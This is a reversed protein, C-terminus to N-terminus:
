ANASKAVSLAPKPDAPALVASVINSHPVVINVNGVTVYFGDDAWWLELGKFKLATQGVTTLSDGINGLGPAFLGQHFKVYTAKRM